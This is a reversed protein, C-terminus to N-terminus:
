NRSINSPLDKPRSSLFWSLPSLLDIAGQTGEFDDIYATSKEMLILVM